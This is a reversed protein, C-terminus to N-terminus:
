SGWGPTSAASNATFTFEPGAIDGRESEAFYVLKLKIVANGQFTGSIEIAKKTDKGFLGDNKVKIVYLYGTPANLRIPDTGSLDSIKTVSVSSGGVKFSPAVATDSYNAYIYFYPSAGNTANPTIWVSFGTLEAPYSSPKWTYSRVTAGVENVFKLDVMKYIEIASVSTVLLDSNPKYACNVTITATVPMYSGIAYSSPLYALMYTGPKVNDFRVVGSSDPTRVPATLNGKADSDIVKEISMSQDFLYVKGSTIAAGSIKDILRVEFPGTISCSTSPGTVTPQIGLMSVLPPGIIVMALLAAILPVGWSVVGSGRGRKDEFFYKRVLTFTGIFVILAVVKGYVGPFMAEFEEASTPISIPGAGIAQPPEAAVPLVLSALFVGFLALFAYRHRM